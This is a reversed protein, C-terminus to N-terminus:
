LFPSIDFLKNRLFFVKGMERQVKREAKAEMKARKKAGVKGADLAEANHAEEAEDEDDEQHQEEAAAARPAGRRQRVGRVGAARRVAPGRPAEVGEGNQRTKETICLLTLKILHSLVINCNLIITFLIKDNQLKKFKKFYSNYYM